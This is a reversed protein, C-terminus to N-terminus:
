DSQETSEVVRDIVGVAILAVLVVCQLSCVRRNNQRRKWTSLSQTDEETERVREQRQKGRKARETKILFSDDWEM